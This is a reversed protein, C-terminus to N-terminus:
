RFFGAVPRERGLGLDLTLDAIGSTNSNRLYFRADGPRWVGVTDDGDYDWDGFIVVDGPNGYTFERDAPGSTLSHRILVRGGLAGMDRYAVPDDDGDRDNDVSQPVDGPNGFFFVADPITDAFDFFVFWQTNSPRYLALSESGNGNWDGAVPIDGAQGVKFAFDAVGSTNSNRVLLETQNGGVVRFVAVTRDGDGDWDGVLGRDGPNGYILRRVDGTRMHLAWEGTVPDFLGVEPLPPTVRTSATTTNNSKDPDPTGSGVRAKNTRLTALNGVVRVTVEFTTSGGAVITGLACKLTGPPGAACSDTDSVYATGAPLTDTVVVSTADSPGANRVTIKYVLTGGLAVPDPSDSKTIALDARRTVRSSVAATDNANNADEVDSSVSAVNVITGTAGSQVDVVVEFSTSAGAALSGLSCTLTGPPGEACDDTDSVYTSATPLTDTVTVGTADSPGNNVVTIVYTVQGGAVVRGPRRGKRIALDAEAIVTTTVSAANDSSDPDITESDAVIENTFSTGAADSPVAVTISYSKSARPAIDGLSCTPVGAPDEACGSTAVLTVGVPLTDTVQVGVATAPGRNTVTVTWTHESGAVAVSGTKDVSLDATDRLEASVYHSLDTAAVDPGVPPTGRAKGLNAYRGPEATGFARCTDAEGVGLAFPQGNDIPGSEPPSTGQCYVTLGESDRVTVGTLPQDGHNAVVYTWVIPTGPRLFPGPPDDADHGNTSKEIDIAAGDVQGLYHSPDTARATRNGSAQASVRGVNRYIGAAAVGSATCTMSEGVALTSQPCTVTVGQDDTVVIGTLPTDGVNTVVYTWLVPDGVPILPGPAEDANDGNTSKEIIVAAGSVTGFYHSPDDDSVDPGSPPSGTATGLNAYQGAAATGVATCTDSEGVALDFPQGNPAPGGGEPPTTGQCFVDVGQDDTVTVGTLDANGNNTVLYTWTVRSGVRLSPGPAGDADQGNTSKQIVISPVDVVGLYHSPDTDIVARNDSGIANVTGVNAYQGPEAIGSATCIIRQGPTLTTRPCSVAVGQDDTVRVDSLTLGGTNTVRYRWNVPDGVGISPGPASDADVGNTFKEIDVRGATVRVRTTEIATNNNAEGSGSGVPDPTSSAVDVQNTILGAEADSDVEVTITYQASDGAAITGLSCTPVGGPDNGCGSTSVFTVESPLTETAVVDQADSPGLNTVTVTYILTGGATVPDPSDSKAVALDASAEVETDESASDNADVPDGADSGVSATNTITGPLTSADVDVIIDFFSGGGAPITGLPCTLTGPPSEVCGPASVVSVGAPLTDTVTVNTADSPGLNDVTITYTLQEGATVPDPSDTKTIALDASPVLDTDDTATNDGPTEDPAPPDATATNSITGTAGADITCDATYTVSSGAPMDLTDAIDGSGAATNGTAGGAAASTYTCTLGAPFTDEVLVDNVPAGLYMDGTDNTVVITYTISEGPAATAQGDTKTVTIDPALVMLADSARPAVVIGNDRLRSTTNIYTAPSTAVPVDLTVSFSCSNGAPLNGGTLQIISTGTLNSGAGCVNSLPLGTATAGGLQSAVDDSFSLDTADNTSPGNDITFQLTVQEGPVVPDDTFSKSFKPVLGSVELSDAAPVGEVAGFGDVNGEPPSTTNPYVGGGAGAPVSLTVSFACSEGAGLVADDLTIFGTGIGTVSGTGNCPPDPVPGASAVLGTLTNDLDDTFTISDILEADNPNTITFELTATGGPKVPDDTFEKTVVPGLPAEVVLEATASGFAGVSSSESSTVNVYTADPTGAPVNVTIRFVCVEAPDLEGNVLFVSGTGLMSSSPGCPPNPDPPLTATMGGVANDLNDVFFISDVTTSGTNEITFELTATGGPFVPDDTFQKTFVIPSVVLDADTAPTETPLGGVTATVTSTTNTRVGLSAGAAVDVPVTFTCTAGIGLTGGTFTLVTSGGTLSSGAGCPPDPDPPPTASFGAGLTALDDTFGIGTAPASAFESHEITFELLVQSGPTTADPIFRKTLTPAGEVELLDVARGGTITQAGVTAQVPDTRNEHGGASAEISVDLTLDFTCSDGPLGAPELNADSVTLKSPTGAVFTATSGPGCFGDAPVGSPSGDIVLPLDDTFEIDTMAQLTTNTLTFQLTVVGGPGVPDDTFSKTFLPASVIHVEEAATNGAVPASNVTGTVQSTENDYAGDAAAEDIDLVVSFTCSAGPALSGGTLAVGDPLTTASLESGPGCVDTAPLGTASLGAGAPFDDTFQINLAPFDRDFNTITFELTVQGGPPAPDDVFNKQIHLAATTVTLQANAKGSEESDATLIGSSNVLAGADETAVDVSVTCTDGADVAPNFANGFYDYDITSTGPEATFAPAILPDRCTTAPNAPDAIVLGPPLVDTFDLVAVNSGNLFNDVTFTLTSREGLDVTSPSFAKSFGPRQDDVTLNAETSGSNGLTSTLSGTENLYGGASPATVDVRITCSKGAGVKGGALSITTGGSPATITGDCTNSVRTPNAITMQAPISPLNDTFALEDAPSGTANDIVFVLTSVSGPGITAPSFSKTWTPVPTQASAGGSIPALAVLMTAMAVLGRVSRRTGM